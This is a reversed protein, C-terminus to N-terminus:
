EVVLFMNNSLSEVGTQRVYSILLEVICVFNM